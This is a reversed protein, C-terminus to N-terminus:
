WNERLNKTDRSQIPNGCLVQRKLQTSVMLFVVELPSESFHLLIKCSALLAVQELMHHAHLRQKNGHGPSTKM